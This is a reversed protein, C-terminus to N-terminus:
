ATDEPWCRVIGLDITAAGGAETDIFFNIFMPLDALNTTHTAVLTENLYFAVQGTSFIMKLKNWDTLTEGFGTNTTEAGTDDSLTALVDAALCWGIINNTARTATGGSTFGFLCLTNDLNAVNVLRLEFELNLKRYITNTGYVGTGMFWRQNSRLRATENANPVATARLYAGDSGRSWATGTAPDTPTWLTLDIGAEDQWTEVMDRNPKATASAALTLIGKLYRMMDSTNDPTYIPTSTKSGVVEPTTNNNSGDASPVILSPTGSGQAM